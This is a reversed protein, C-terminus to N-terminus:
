DVPDILYTLGLNVTWASYGIFGAQAQYGIMLQGLWQKKLLYHVGGFFNSVAASTSLAPNTLFFNPNEPYVGRSYAIQIWNDPRDFYKKVTFTIGQSAPASTTTTNYVSPSYAYSVGTLLNEGWYKNIGGQFVFVNVANFVGGASDPRFNMYDLGLTGEWSEALQQFLHAGLRYRAFRGKPSFGANLHVYRTETKLKPYADAEFMYGFSTNDGPVFGAHVSGIYSGSPVSRYYRGTFMRWSVTDKVSNVTYIYRNNTYELGYGNIHIIGKQFNYSKMISKDDSFNSVLIEQTQQAEQKLGLRQLLLFKKLLYEKDNPYIQLGYNVRELALTLNNDWTELDVMSGILEYSDFADKFLEQYIARAEKYRKTWSYITGMLYRAEYNDPDVNLVRSCIAMSENFEKKYALDRAEALMADLDIGQKKLEEQFVDRFGRQKQLSEDRLENYYQVAQYDSPDEKLLRYIVDKARYYDGSARYIEAKKFLYERDNPYYRLGLSELRNLAEPYNKAWLEIDVATLIAERDDGGVLNVTNIVKRAMEFENQWAYTQALLVIAKTYRPQSALIESITERAKSFEQNWALNQAKKFVSDVPTLLKVNRDNITIDAVVDQVIKRYLERAEYNGSDKSLIVFLNKKASYFDGKLIEAKAKLLLFGDDDPYVKLATNALEIAGNADGEWLEMTVLQKFALINGNDFEFVKYYFLRATDLKNDWAYTNGLVFYADVYEPYEQLIRYCVLRSVEFNKEIALKQALQIAEDANFKSRTVQAYTQFGVPLIVLFSLLLFFSKNCLKGIM